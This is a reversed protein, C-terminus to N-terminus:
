DRTRGARHLLTGTPSLSVHKTNRTMRTTVVGSEALAEVHRAITSKSRDSEVALDPLTVDGGLEVLLEFTDVANSPITATLDPITLERVDQDVDTYQLARDVLPAHLVAAISLPLLVERAGGGFNVVLDRDGDVAILIDSCQLVAATFETSEIQEMSVTAGPEIEQTTDTVYRVADNARDANGEESPRVLVIRDGDDLGNKIVPRTVRTEHFGLTSVYTRM